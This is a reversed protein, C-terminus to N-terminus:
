SATFQHMNIGNKTHYHSVIVYQVLLEQILNKCSITEHDMIYVYYIITPNKAKHKGTLFMYTIHSQDKKMYKCNAIM